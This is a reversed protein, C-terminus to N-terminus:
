FPPSRTSDKGAFRVTDTAFVATEEFATQQHLWNEYDEYSLTFRNWFGGVVTVTQLAGLVGWITVLRDADKYKLPRVLVHDLVAFMSTAAGIGLTITLVTITTFKPRRCLSQFAYRCDSAVPDLRGRCGSFDM